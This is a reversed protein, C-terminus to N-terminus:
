IELSNNLDKRTKSLGKWNNRVTKFNKKCHEKRIKFANTIM